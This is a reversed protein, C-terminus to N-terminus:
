RVINLIIQFRQIEQNLFINLPVLEPSGSSVGAPAPLNRIKERVFISDFNKPLMPILQTKIKEKVQDERSLGSSESSEKPKTDLLVNIM